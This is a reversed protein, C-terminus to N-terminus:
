LHDILLATEARVTHRKGTREDMVSFGDPFDITFDADSIERNFEFDNLELVYRHSHIRNLTEVREPMWFGGDVQQFEKVILEEVIDEPEPRSLVTKMRQQRVIMFDKAPDLFFRLFGTKHGSIDLRILNQDYFQGETIGIRYRRNMLADAMSKKDFAHNLIVHLGINERYFTLQKPREATIEARKYEHMGDLTGYEFYARAGFEGNYAYRLKSRSYPAAGDTWELLEDTIDISLKGHPKGTALVESEVYPITSQFSDDDTDWEDHSFRVNYRVNSLRDEVSRIKEALAKREPAVPGNFAYQLGIIVAVFSLLVVILFLTDSSFKFRKM